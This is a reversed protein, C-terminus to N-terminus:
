RKFSNLKIWYNNYVIFEQNQRKERKFLEYGKPQILLEDVIFPAGNGNGTLIIKFEDFDQDITFDMEILCWDQVILNPQRMDFQSIWITSDLKASYTQCIATLDPRDEKLYFWFKASYDGPRLQSKTLKVLENGGNKADKLASSGAFIEHPLLKSNPEDFGDYYFWRTTDSKWGQGVSRTALKEKQVVENFYYPTNYKNKDFHFVEYTDNEMIKESCWILRLEQLKLADKNKVIVIKDDAPLDYVFDKEIFEPSFFNNVKVSESFSMRSSISNVTPLQTHFSLIMADRNAEETGLLMINESSMHQMPLFIIADYDSSNLYDVVQTLDQNVNEPKFTNPHQSIIENSRTHLGYFEMGYFVFAGVFILDYVRANRHRFVKYFGVISAITIVYYFVWAFRGLVRFQKIPSVVDAMWRLWDYKLPFCFSFMLILYSTLVFLMLETRLLPKFEIQKRNKIAYVILVVIFVVTPFGLYAWTEWEGIKVEFASFIGSLPGDHPILMSKWGAYYHFFGAPNSLRDNHTDTLFMLGQFILFPLVVQLGLHFFLRWRNKALMFSILWYTLTFLLLIMGLYPHTFFFVATYLGILVSWKWSKDQTYKILFWFLGPIAFVYSLSFHGMMRFIQPSMFALAIGALVAWLNSVQYHKLIKFIFFSAIPYSLLMLFNLIGIGYAALGLSRILFALLPHGDTYVVHEYYPYNMGTFNVLSTAYNAQYLYTYYNKIGDGDASFLVDNPHLLVKSYFFFLVGFSLFFCLLAFQNIKWFNKM